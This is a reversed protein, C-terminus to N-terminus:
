ATALGGRALLSAACDVITEVGPRPSFGLLRRAKESTLRNRRGLDPTLSRLPPIVLSLARVLTPCNAPPVKAAQEGLRARLTSVSSRVGSKSCSSSVRLARERPPRVRM